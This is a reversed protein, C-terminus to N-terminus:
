PAPAAGGPSSAGAPSMAARLLQTQTAASADFIGGMRGESLMLIRDALGLLEPLESSVLVVALGGETLQRILAYIERKAGIDIGRTPEDLLVVEPRTMLARGLVVKQQNGGSLTGVRAELSAAKISLSAVMELNKERELDGDVFGYTCLEPLASLSLNFGVSADLSLGFRKRDETVLVMGAEVNRRPDGREPAGRLRVSGQSREGYCGFLHMLLESRGAGMLGGIGLVEGRRVEFGIGSLRAPEGRRPVVALEEVSLLVEGLQGRRAPFLDGLRRGVMQEVVSAEDTERALASFVSQGDRLVSIRDAVHFVEDLKHSIYVCSVGSKKLELIVALLSEIERETLASTPEDLILVRARKALARAIEVLQKQGMGLDGVRATPELELELRRLVEATARMMPEHQVFGFRSPENGLFVNEAVTLEDVLALEQHIVAIGAAEADRVTGFAVPEGDCLLTGTYSNQPLVGGLVKILTSKGAGNEGCLAHVEAEQLRLSVEKLAVVGPYQKTIRRAELITGAM